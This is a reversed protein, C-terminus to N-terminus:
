RRSPRKGWGSLLLRALKQWAVAMPRVRDLYQQSIDQITHARQEVTSVELMSGYAM